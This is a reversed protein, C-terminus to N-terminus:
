VYITGSAFSVNVAFIGTPLEVNVINGDTSISQITEGNSNNNIYMIVEDTDWLIGGSLVEYTFSVSVSEIEFSSKPICRLNANCSASYVSFGLANYYDMNLNDFSATIDFYEMFNDATISIPTKEPVDEIITCGSFIMIVSCMICFINLFGRKM